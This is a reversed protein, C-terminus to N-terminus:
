NLAHSTAQRYGALRRSEGRARTLEQQWSRRLENGATTLRKQIDCLKQFEVLLIDLPVDGSLELAQQTLRSREEERASALDTQGSELAELEQEGMELAQELLDICAREMLRDRLAPIDSHADPTPVM